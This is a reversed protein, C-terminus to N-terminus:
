GSATATRMSGDSRGPGTRRATDARRRRHHGARGGSAHRGGRPHPAHARATRPDDHRGEPAGRHPHGPPGRCPLRRTLARRSGHAGRLAPAPHRRHRRRRVPARFPGQRVRGPTGPRRRRHPRDRGRPITGALPHCWVRRGNRAILLEPSAGFFTGDPVPFLFITCAPEHARLRRLVASVPLPGSLEATVSRSLVVKELPTGAHGM